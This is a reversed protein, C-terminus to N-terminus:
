GRNPFIGKAPGPISGSVEQRTTLLGSWWAVLSTGKMNQPVTFEAIYQSFIKAGHTSLVLQSFFYPNVLLVM